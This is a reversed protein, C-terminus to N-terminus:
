EAAEADDQPTPPPPKLCKLSESWWALSPDDFMKIVKESFASDSGAAPFSLLKEIPTFDHSM